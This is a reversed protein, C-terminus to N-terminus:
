GLAEEIEGIVEGAEDLPVFDVFLALINKHDLSSTLHKSELQDAAYTLVEIPEGGPQTISEYGKRKQPLDQFFRDFDSGDLEFRIEWRDKLFFCFHEYIQQHLPEQISVRLACEIWFISLALIEEAIAQRQEPDAEVGYEEVISPSIAPPLLDFIQEALQRPDPIMFDEQRVFFSCAEM